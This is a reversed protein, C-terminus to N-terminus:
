LEKAQAPTIHTDAHPKAQPTQIQPPQTQPAQTQPPPTPSQALALTSVLTVAALVAARRLAPIRMRKWGSALSYNKRLLKAMLAAGSAATSGRSSVGRACCRGPGEAGTAKRPASALPTKEENSASSPARVVAAPM